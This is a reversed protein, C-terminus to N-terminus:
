RLRATHESFHRALNTGERIQQMRRHQVFEAQNGCDLFICVSEALAAANFQVQLNLGIESSDGLIGFRREKSDNLLAEGVNLPMRATQRAQNAQSALVPLNLKLHTIRTTSNSAIWGILIIAPFPSRTQTHSDQPHSFAHGLETSCQLYNGAGGACRNLSCNRYRKPSGIGGRRMRTASSWSTTLVPSRVRSSDRFPQFTQASAAFPRSATSFARSKLGSTATSSMPIGSRLPTSAVRWIRLSEGSVSIRTRVICSESVM